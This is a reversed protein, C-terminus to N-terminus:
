HIQASHTFVAALKDEYVLRFHPDMRLLQTLPAKVPGIVLAAATLDPDSAWEPEGGWTAISRNLREDGAFTSRGDITVPMNLSWILYGGWGFDNFLPGSYGQQKVFDVARVPLDESLQNNLRGNDLHMLRGGLFLIIAVAAVTLPALFVPIPRREKESAAFQQALIAGAVIAMIWMDRLSRFSVCAAFIFLTTEFVPFSRRSGDNKVPAALAMATGFALFLVCYDSWTRFPIAQMESISALAGAQTALDHAVRYITWGYPNILTALLSAAFFSGFWIPTARTRARTWWRAAISEGLALALVVLGDIFQIHVNAWLCYIVPLWLLRRHRGSKRVAMLIDLQLVFFLISFQWPRPTYLRLFSLNVALTLLVAASFDPQLRRVLSYIAITIALIMGATYAVLGALGLSEYCKLLIVEFLWSYAQWPKGVGFSTFPDTRPVAHHQVIWQGTRLHWWVDPDVVIAAHLCVLAPVSFLIALIIAEAVQNGRRGTVAQTVPKDYHTDAIVKMAELTNLCNPNNLPFNLAKKIRGQALDNM